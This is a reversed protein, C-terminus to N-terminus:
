TTWSRRSNFVVKQARQVNRIPNANGVDIDNIDGRGAPPLADVKGILLHRRKWIIQRLSDVDEPVIGDPDPIQIDKLGITESCSGM